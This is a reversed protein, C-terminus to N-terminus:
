LFSKMKTNGQMFLFLRRKRLVFVTGQASFKDLHMRFGSIEARWVGDKNWETRLRWGIRCVLLKEKACVKRIVRWFWGKGGEAEWECGAM